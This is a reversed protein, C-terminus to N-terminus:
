RFLKIKVGVFAGPGMFDKEDFVHGLVNVKLLISYYAGANLSVFDNLPYSIGAMPQAYYFYDSRTARTGNEDDLWYLGGGVRLSYLIKMKTPVYHGGKTRRLGLKMYYQLEAGVHQFNVDFKAGPLADYETPLPPVKKSAYVGVHWTDNFVISASLSLVPSFNGGVKTIEVQPIAAFNVRANKQRWIPQATITFATLLIILNLLIKKM